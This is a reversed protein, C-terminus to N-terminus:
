VNADNGGGVGPTAFGNDSRGGISGRRSSTSRKKKKKKSRKSKITEADEESSGGEFDIGFEIGLDEYEM